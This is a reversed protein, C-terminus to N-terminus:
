QNQKKFIRVYDIIFSAPFISNDVGQVGGWEGGIALNLILFFPNNYPWLSSSPESPKQKYFYLDGDVFGKIYTPEWELSYIHFDNEIGSLSYVGQQNTGSLDGYLNENHVSFFVNNPDYGVHEMIDIEGCTPWGVSNISTGLMWIAPWTGVGSPLKARVEIYGHEIEVKNATNIRASTYAPNNPNFPTEKKARIYLSGSNISINNNSNTYSQLENNNARPPLLEINWFRTDLSDMNFEDNWFFTYGEPLEQAGICNGDNITAMSDYNIYGLETCGVYVCSEDDITALSSYNIARVDTCGNINDSNSNNPTGNDCSIFFFVFIFFCNIM